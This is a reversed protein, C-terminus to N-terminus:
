HSSPGTYWAKKRAQKSFYRHDRQRCWFWFDVGQEQYARCRVRKYGEIRIQERAREVSFDPHQAGRPMPPLELRVKRSWLASLSIGMERAAIDNDQRSWHRYALELDRESDWKTEPGRVRKTPALAVVHSPSAPPAVPLLVDTGAATPTPLESSTRRRPQKARRTTTPGRPIGALEAQSCPTPVGVAATLPAGSGLGDISALTPGPLSAISRDRAPRVVPSSPRSSAPQVAAPPSGAPSPCAPARAVLVNNETATAADLGAALEVDRNPRGSLPDAPDVLDRRTRKPLGLHRAKYYISGPSRGYRSALSAVRWGALWHHIFDPIDEAQWAKPNAAHRHPRDPPTSLALAVIWELLTGRAIDLFLQLTELGHGRAVM